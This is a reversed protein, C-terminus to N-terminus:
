RIVGNIEFSLWIYGPKRLGQCEATTQSGSLALFRSPKAKIMASAQLRGWVGLSIGKASSLAMKKHEKGESAELTIFRDDMTVGDVFLEQITPM